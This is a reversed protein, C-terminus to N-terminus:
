YITVGFLYDAMLLWYTESLYSDTELSIVTEKQGFASSLGFVLIMLLIYIVNTFDKKM